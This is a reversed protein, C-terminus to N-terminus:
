PHTTGHGESQPLGLLAALWCNFKNEHGERTLWHHLDYSMWKKIAIKEASFPHRFDFILGWLLRQLYKVDRWNKLYYDRLSNSIAKDGEVYQSWIAAHIEYKSYYNIM